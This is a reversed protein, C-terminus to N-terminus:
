GRPNKRRHALKTSQAGGGSGPMRRKDRSPEAGAAAHSAHKRTHWAPSTSPANRGEGLLRAVFLVQRVGRGHHARADRAEVSFGASALRREFSPDHSSSWVVLTGGAALARTLTAIGQTDWLLRNTAASLAWPGNDVDMLIVDYSGRPKAGAQALLLRVDTCAVTVRPDRLPHGALDGVFERNWAVVAPSIEAVTVAGSPALEDLVARLTYGLGLGGILVRTGPRGIAPQAAAAMGEESGHRRSSMLEDTGVRIAYERDRQMLVLEGGSPTQAKALLTWTKVQRSYEM